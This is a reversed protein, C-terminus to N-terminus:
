EGQSPVLGAVTEHVARLCGSGYWDQREYWKMCGSTMRGSSIFPTWFAWFRNASDAELATSRCSLLSLSPVSSQLDDHAKVAAMIRARHPRRAPGSVAACPWVDTRFIQNLFARRKCTRRSGTRNDFGKRFGTDAGKRPYATGKHWGGPLIRM